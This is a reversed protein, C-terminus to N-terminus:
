VDEYEESYMSEIDDFREQIDAIQDESFGWYDLVGSDTDLIGMQGIEAYAEDFEEELDVTEIPGQAILDKLAYMIDERSASLHTDDDILICAARNCFLVVVDGKSTNYIHTAGVFGYKRSEFYDEVEWFNDRVIGNSVFM